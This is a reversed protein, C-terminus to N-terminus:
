KVFGLKKFLERSPPVIDYDNLKNEPVWELKEISKDGIKLEGKRYRCLTDLYVFQKVEGDLDKKVETDWSLQKDLEIEIGTKDLVEQKILDEITRGPTLEAGFLYWTEKYPPSGDPKKRMLILNNKAVIAIILIKIKM